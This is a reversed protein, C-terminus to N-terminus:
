GNVKRDILELWDRPSVPEGELRVEVYLVAGQREEDGMVGVPEGARVWDGIGSYMRSFGALLSHYGGAHEIILLRGYTRFHGSFVIQGERPAVVYAGGGAQVFIGQSYTGNELREGFDRIIPGETPYPLSNQNPLTHAVHSDNLRQTADPNKQRSVSPVMPEFHGPSASKLTAVLEELDEAKSALSAVEEAASKRDSFLAAQLSSKRRLVRELKAQEVELEEKADTLELQRRRHKVHVAESRSLARSIKTVDASLASMFSSLVVVRLQLQSKQNPTLLLAEPPNKRLRALVGVAASLHNNNEMLALRALEHSAELGGLEIEVGDIAKNRTQIDESITVIRESLSAIERALEISRSDLGNERNRKIELQQSLLELEGQPDPGLYENAESRAGTLMWLFFLMTRASTIM